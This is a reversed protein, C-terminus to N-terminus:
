RDFIIRKSKEGAVERVYRPVMYGPLSNRLEHIITRGEQEPIEFHHAGSVRDLQHLYYPIIGLEFLRRSLDQLVDVTDNVQRLLVSQNFLITGAQRLSQIIEAVDDGLEQPHNCHVVVVCQKKKAISHICELHTDTVTEPSVIPVRTHFRITALQDISLLLSTLERLRRPHISFPDGGSLIVESVSSEERLYGALVGDTSGDTPKAARHHQRRFCFRCNIACTDATLLLIRGNYKHLIGPGVEADNDGVPDDSYGCPPTALEEKRPLVQLLLPDYWNNKRIKKAYGYPVRCAYTPSFDLPYPADEVAINLFNCLQQPATFCSTTITKM